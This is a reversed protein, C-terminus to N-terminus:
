LGLPYPSPKPSSVKRPASAARSGSFVLGGPVGLAVGLAVALGVNQLVLGWAAGFFLGVSIGAVVYKM